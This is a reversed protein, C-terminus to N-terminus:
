ILPEIEDVDNNDNNEVQNNVVGVANPDDVEEFEQNYACLSKLARQVQSNL